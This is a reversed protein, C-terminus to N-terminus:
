FTLHQWVSILALEALIPTERDLMKFQRAIILSSLRSLLTLADLYTYLQLYSLLALLVSEKQTLLLHYVKLM